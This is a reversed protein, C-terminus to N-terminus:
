LMITDNSSIGIESYGLKILPYKSEITSSKKM